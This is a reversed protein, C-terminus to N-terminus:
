AGTEASGTTRQDSTDATELELAKGRVWDVLEDSYAFVGGRDGGPIRHVPLGRDREWRKVTSESYNLFVAIEKWSVLTRAPETNKSRFSAMAVEMSFARGPTQPQIRLIM